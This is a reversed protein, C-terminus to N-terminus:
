TNVSHILVVAFILRLPLPIWDVTDELKRRTYQAAEGLDQEFEQMPGDQGAGSLGALAFAAILKMTTLKKIDFKM